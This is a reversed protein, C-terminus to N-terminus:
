ARAGRLAALSEGARWLAVVCFVVAGALCLTYAQWIEFGLIFTTEFFAKKDLMGVALRWALLAAMALVALDILADLARNLRDGLLPAFLEVTANGRNLHCWPLAAFVAFGIGIEVLEYDGPVPGLGIGSLARGAISVCTLGVLAVLVLGGALATWVALREVASKM